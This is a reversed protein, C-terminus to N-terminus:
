SLTSGKKSFFFFLLSLGALLVLWVYNSFGSSFDMAQANGSQVFAAWYYPHAFAKDAQQLHQIKAQRLAVDKGQLAQLNQYFQFMIQSTSCDDVSWLSMLTSPCGAQLFARSLSGIGEGKLLQGSGTNCASLVALDAQLTMNYLEKNSMFDDVFHIKNDAWDQEGACAHTALHVIRYNAAEELFSQKSAAKALRAEGDFLALIGEVEQQNCHLSFLQDGTCARHNGAIDQGFSPAYGIFTARHKTPTPRKKQDLHQLLLTASYNYSLAFDKLLYSMNLWDFDKIPKQPKKTFLLEFPLYALADDSILLLKDISAPLAKLVPILIQQSLEWNIQVFNQADEVFTNAQPAQSFIKRLEQVSHNLSDQPPLPFVQLQDSTLCFVFSKQQGVFYEILATQEKLISQRIDTISATQTGYKIKHYAPYTAEFQAILKKYEQQLDFLISQWNTIKQSNAKAKKQKQRNIKKIYFAIDVRLQHERALATDPIGAQSIADSAQLSELLLMAKNREAFSFAEELFYDEKQMQYLTLATEIGGEYVSLAKEALLLKSGEQLFSQRLEQVLKAAFQFQQFAQLLDAAQQDQLYRLFFAQAKGVIIELGEMKSIMNEPLPNATVAAETFDFALVLLAKQYQELAATPAQYHLHTNGM